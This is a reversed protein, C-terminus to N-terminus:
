VVEVPMLRENKILVLLSVLIIGIILYTNTM